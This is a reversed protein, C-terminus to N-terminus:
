IPFIVEESSITMVEMLCISSRVFARNWGRRVIAETTINNLEPVIFSPISIDEILPLYISMDSMVRYDRWQSIYRPDDPFEAKNSIIYSRYLLRDANPHPTDSVCLGLARMATMEDLWGNYYDPTSPEFCEKQYIIQLKM